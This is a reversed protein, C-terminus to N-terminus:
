WLLCLSSDPQTNLGSWLPGGGSSPEAEAPQADGAGPRASVSRGLLARACPACSSLRRPCSFLWTLQCFSRQTSGHNRNPRAHRCHFRGVAGRRPSALSNYWGDFRPVEWTGDCRSGTPCPPPNLCGGERELEARFSYLPGPSLLECTSVALLLGLPACVSWLRKRLDM